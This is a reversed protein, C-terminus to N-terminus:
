STKKFNPSADIPIEIQFTTGRGYASICSLKGGHKEVIIQYSVSLGLGVGKGVAKTTFFPDYIKRQLEESIGFGNDFIQINIWNQQHTTTTIRIIPLSGFNTKMNNM